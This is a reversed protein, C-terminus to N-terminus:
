AQPISFVVTKDGSCWPKYKKMVGNFLMSDLFGDLWVQLAIYPSQRFWNIDVHAFQRIFPMIAVDAVSLEDGLLYRKTKLRGELVNLFSEGQTRYHEATFEPYRDAYKYRDLYGKFEDDNQQILDNLDRYAPTQQLPMWKDPDNQALAWQMVGWSEDVVDDNPLVLVPVTGKASCNLMDQPKNKLEIERLEVAIGSYSIAMRARM